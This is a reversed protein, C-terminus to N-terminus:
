VYSVFSLSQGDVLGDIINDKIANPSTQETPVVQGNVENENPM